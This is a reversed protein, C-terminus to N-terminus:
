PPKGPCVYYLLTSRYIPFVTSSVIPIPVVKMLCMIFHEIGAPTMMKALCVEVTIQVPLFLVPVLPNIYM